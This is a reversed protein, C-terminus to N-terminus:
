RKNRRGRSRRRKPPRRRQPTSEPKGHTKQHYREDVLMALLEPSESALTQVMPLFRKMREREIGSKGTLAKNLVNMAREVALAAVEEETPVPQQEMNIDYYRAISHLNPEEEFTTLTIATGERGARATRGTRHIYMETHLPVDYQIVHSLDDIDIGRAAVDTAILVRLQGSRLRKMAKERAAQSLDGSIGASLFGYNGLLGSLFTVERRTNAFIIASEPNVVELIRILSQHKEQYPPRYYLHRIAEVGVRNESLGLFCPNTLFMRGLARVKPPMTASFMSARCKKPMYTRLRKMDPLFGMSLMEDAEDLILLSLQDLTFTKRSLHDLIRGPTGVVVHAGKSLKQIQPNYGVGGYVLSSTFTKEVNMAEFEVHIQRALERTPALILVQTKSLSADLSDFLPLLFAGTKGSGTRSQVIMDRGDVLYPIARSQVPMLSAWGTAAFATKVSSPLTDPTAQPLAPDPPPFEDRAEREKEERLARSTM